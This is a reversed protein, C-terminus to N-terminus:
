KLKSEIICVAAFVADKFLDAWIIDGGGLWGHVAAVTM